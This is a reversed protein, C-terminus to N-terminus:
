SQAESVTLSLYELIATRAQEFGFAVVVRYGQDRLARHWMLQEGSVDSNVGDARKVELFLGHHGGRAVPLMVDPVGRKRGEAKARKGSLLRSLKSGHHGAFNPIAFLLKWGIDHQTLAYAFLEKQEDHESRQLAKPLRASKKVVAVDADRPQSAKVIKRVKGQSIRSM